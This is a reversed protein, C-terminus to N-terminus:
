LIKGSMKKLNVKDDTHDINFGRSCSLHNGSAIYVQRYAVRDIESETLTTHKNM